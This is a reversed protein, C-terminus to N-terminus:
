VFDNREEYIINLITDKFCEICEEYDDCGCERSECTLDERIEQRVKEIITKYGNIEKKLEECEQEKAQLQSKLDYIECDQSTIQSKLKENEEKERALQKFNCDKNEECFNAFPIKDERQDLYCCINHGNCDDFSVCKSVDVGNIIIEKNGM